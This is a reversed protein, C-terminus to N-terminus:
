RPDIVLTAGRRTNVLLFVSDDSRSAVFVNAYTGPVLSPINFELDV